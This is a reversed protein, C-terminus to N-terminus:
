RRGPPAGAGARRVLGHGFNERKENLRRRLKQSAQLKHSYGRGPHFYRRSAVVICATATCHNLAFPSHVKVYLSPRKRLTGVERLSGVLGRVELKWMMKCIEKSNQPMKAPVDDATVAECKRLLAKQLYWSGVFCSVVLALSAIPLRLRGRERRPEAIRM